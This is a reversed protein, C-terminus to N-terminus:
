GTVGKMYETDHVRYGWYGTGQVRHETCGARYVQWTGGKGGKWQVWTDQVRCGTGRTCRTWEVSIQCKMFCSKIPIVFIPPSSWFNGWFANPYHHKCISIAHVGERSLYLNRMGESVIGKAIKVMKTTLVM